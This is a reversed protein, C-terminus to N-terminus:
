AEALGMTRAIEQKLVELWFNERGIARVTKVYLDLNDDSILENESRFGGCILNIADNNAKMECTVDYLQNVLALDPTIINDLTLPPGGVVTLVQDKHTANVADLDVLNKNLSTLSTIQKQLYSIHGELHENNAEAQKNHHSLQSYLAGFKMTNTNVASVVANVSDPGELYSNIRESLVQLTENHQPSFLVNAGREDKDMLDDTRQPPRSKAPPLRPERPAVFQKTERATILPRPQVVTQQQPPPSQPHIYEPSRSSSYLSIPPSPTYYNAGNEPVQLANAGPLPLPSQYKLPIGNRSHGPKEPLPPGTLQPSFGIPEPQGEDRHESIPIQGSGTTLGSLQAPIAGETSFLAQPNYAVRPPKPPLQPAQEEMSMPVPERIATRNYIPVEKSFTSALVSVLGVLNFRTPATPDHAFCEGFWQSLYPHYVKGQSDIHNGRKVLWGSETDPKVYVVPVSDDGSPSVFPYGLPIWIEVPVRLEESVFVTGFLNVLLSPQGTSSTYISTRIRFRLQKGNLFQQLFQYIHTYTIEKHVYLPQLVNYVWNAVKPLIQSMLATIPRHTPKYANYRITKPLASKRNPPAFLNRTYFASQWDCVFLWTMILPYTGPHQRYTHKSAM